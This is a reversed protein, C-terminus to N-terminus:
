YKETRVLNLKKERLDYEYYDRERIRSEDDNSYLLTFAAINNNVFHIEEVGHEGGPVLTESLPFFQYQDSLNGYETAYLGSVGTSSYNDRHSRLIVNQKDPSWVIDSANIDPGLVSKKTSVNLLRIRQGEVFSVYRSDSSVTVESVYWSSDPCFEKGYEQTLLNRYVEKWEEGLRVELVQDRIPDGSRCFRTEGETLRYSHPESASKRFLGDEELELSGLIEFFIRADRPKEPFNDTPYYFKLYEGEFPLFITVPYTFEDAPGYIPMVERLLTAKRDDIVIDHSSLFSVMTRINKMQWLSDDNKVFDLYLVSANGQSNIENSDYEDTLVVSLNLADTSVNERVSVEPPYRFRIGFDDNQYLLWGAVTEGRAMWETYKKLIDEEPRMIYRNEGKDSKVLSYEVFLMDDSRVGEALEKGDSHNNDNKQQSFWVSFAAAFLFFLM